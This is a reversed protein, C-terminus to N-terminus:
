WRSNSGVRTVIDSITFETYPTGDTYTADRYLGDTVTGTASGGLYIPYTTGETLETSSFAISQFEKSPAFTLINQGDESQIHVLTGAAQTSDFNILVSPQTSTQGPAQAMGASGAAVLEGGSLTFSGDYDLAGNGRNTPGNVIVLGDTMEISGNADLGDGGADVVITGGNIYLYYNGSTAFGDGGPGGAQGFLDGLDFGDDDDARPGRGRGFEGNPEPRDGGGPGPRRGMGSGDNGGAVNLGDDSAVLNINGDNITIVASEIGEYSETINIDGDNIELTSDAHIGDDGSAIVFTGNNVVLSGNSHLADDASDLTFTGGDINVNVAAKIGKASTEEDITVTSGGGSTLTFTGDTIMVDTEAQMADGGANITITGTEITITGKDTDEENDSKFGDGQADVTITGDKVVLYDKGRIGDDAANVTITGSAIILGDKSAIGDNYSANVTLSGNGYITMDAKSFLAANPEDEEPDEFVYSDSDTISNETGDALVIMVKEAAAVNIPASTSNRLDVGNLILRVIAEDETDVIIQGDELTGSLSYTGAATITVTSGDITVDDSDATISDGNLAIAIVSASDWTYDDADDHTESNAAAADDVSAAGMDANVETTATIVTTTDSVGSSDIQQEFSSLIPAVSSSCGALMSLSLLGALLFTTKRKIM